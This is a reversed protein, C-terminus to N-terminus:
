RHFRHHRHFRHPRHLRRPQQYRRPQHSYGHHGYNNRGHRRYHRPQQFNFYGGHHRGHGYGLNFGPVGYSFSVRATAPEAMVFVLLAVASVKLLRYTKPRHITNM